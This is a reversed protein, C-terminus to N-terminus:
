WFAHPWDFILSVVPAGPLGGYTAAVTTGAMPRRAPGMSGVGVPDDPELAIGAGTLDTFANLPNGLVASAPATGPVEGNWALTRTM